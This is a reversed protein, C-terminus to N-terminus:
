IRFTQNNTFMQFKRLSIYFLKVRYETSFDGILLKRDPKVDRLPQCNCQATLNKSM